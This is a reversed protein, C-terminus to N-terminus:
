VGGRGRALAMLGPEIRSTLLRLIHFADIPAAQGVGLDALLNDKDGKPPASYCEEHLLQRVGSRGARM